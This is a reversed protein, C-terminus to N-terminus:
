GLFAAAAAVEAVLSRAAGRTLSLLGTPAGDRLRRLVDDDGLDALEELGACSPGGAFLPADPRTGSPQLRAALERLRLAPAAAAAALQALSVLRRWEALFVVARRAEQLASDTADCAPPLDILPDTVDARVDAVDLGYLPVTAEFGGEGATSARLLAHGEPQASRRDVLRVLLRAAVDPHAVPGFAPVRVVVSGPVDSGSVAIEPCTPDPSWALVRARVQRPDIMGVARTLRQQPPRPLPPAECTPATAGSQGARSPRHTLRRWGDLVSLLERDPGALDDVLESYGDVLDKLAASLAVPAPLPGRGLRRLFAVLDRSSRRALRLAEGTLLARAPGHPLTRAARGRTIGREADVLSQELPAQLWRDLADVVAVRLWPAATAAVARAPESLAPGPGRAPLDGVLARILPAAAPDSGASSVTHWRDPATLDVAVHVGAGLHMGHVLPAAVPGPVVRVGAASRDFRACSLM